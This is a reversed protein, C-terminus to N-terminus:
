RAYPRIRFRNLGFARLDTFPKEQLVLQAVALASGPGAIFGEGGHGACVFLGEAPQDVVPLLDPTCPRSGSRSGFIRAGALRPVRRVGHEVIRRDLEREDEAESAAWSAGLLVCGDPRQHALLAVAPREGHLAAGTGLTHDGLIHHLLPPLPETRLVRGHVGILPLAVGAQRALRVTGLGAALVVVRYERAEGQATVLRWRDGPRRSLGTVRTRVRLHAGDTRVQDALAAVLAAPETRRGEPLLLGAPIDAALAPEVQRLASADLVEGDVGKGREALASAEESGAALVLAGVPDRDWAFDGHAALEAYFDLSRRWFPRLAEGPPVIQGHAQGSAGSGPREAEWVDVDRGARVLHAAVALGVIGGGVVAVDSM